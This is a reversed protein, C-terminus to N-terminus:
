KNHLTFVTIEPKAAGIRAPFGVEGVGINVYLNMPTGDSAVTNYLGGWDKYRFKSPSWKFDGLKLMIQMAHTHGSLSLDINSIKTAVKIWHEPNHTLLIKFMGDNLGKLKDNSEPYSKGLDGLQNFPPEGWNHVGILVISDQKNKLFATQNNLMQWGMEAIDKHLESLNNNYAEQTTWDVYGGYDHNGYVAYVGDSAKLRGLIKKFPKLEEGKRNVFDGTFLIVDPQQNNISDVMKSIFTTDNGWTGLHMDSFQVIKYGNFSEPLKSSVIDLKNIELTHRTHIIGWWMSIFVIVGLGIGIWSIYKIRRKIFYSLINGFISFICYIFKPIYITLFSFLMWMVPLISDNENKRPLCLAIIVFAWLLVSSISYMYEMMKKKKGIYKRRIDFLIYIDILISFLVLLISLVLPIRM